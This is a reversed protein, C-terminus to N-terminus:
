AGAEGEGPRTWAVGSDPVDEGTWHAAACATGAAAGESDPRSEGKSKEGGSAGSLWRGGEGSEGGRGGDYADESPEDVDESPEDWEEPDM